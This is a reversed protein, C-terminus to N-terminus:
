RWCRCPSIAIGARGIACEYDGLGTEQKGTEICEEITWRMGAATVLTHLPTGAPAFVIFYAVEGDTLNRRVLLAHRVDPARGWRSLPFLAWEYLRPRKAGEGCSLRQWGDDPLDAAWANARRQQFGGYHNTKLWEWSLGTSHEEM